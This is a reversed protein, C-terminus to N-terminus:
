KHEKQHYGYQGTHPSMESNSQNANKKYNVISLINEHAQQVHM